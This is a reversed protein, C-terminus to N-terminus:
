ALAPLGIWLNLHTGWFGGLRYAALALLPGCLAGLATGKWLAGAYGDSAPVVYPVIEGSTGAEAERVAARVAERDPESFLKDIDVIKLPAQVSDTEPRASGQGPERLHHHGLHRDQHLREGMGEM